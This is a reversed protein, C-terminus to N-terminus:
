WGFRLKNNKDWKRKELTPKRIFNRFKNYELSSVLYVPVVSLLVYSTQVVCLLDPRREGERIVIVWAVASRPFISAHETWRKSMLSPNAQLYTICTLNLIQKYKSRHVKLKLCKSINGGKGQTYIKNKHMHIFLSSSACMINSNHKPFLLFDSM